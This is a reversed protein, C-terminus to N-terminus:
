TAGCSCAPRASPSCSARCSSTTTSRRCGNPSESAHVGRGSLHRAAGARGRRGDGRSDADLDGRVRVRLRHVALQGIARCRLDVPARASRARGADAVADAGVGARRRARGGAGRRVARRRAALELIGAGDDRDGRAAREAAHRRVPVAGHDRRRVRHDPDGRRVARRAARVSRVARRVVRDAAARQLDPNRQAIVLLSAGVAIAAFLYFLILNLAWLVAGRRGDRAPQRGVLPLLVKWGFAMLQDYRYRPLTWRMWVYFFLLRGVKVLFWIWGLSEPLLPGHWGGLFLDTAVASVTVM